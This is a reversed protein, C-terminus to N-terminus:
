ATRHQHDGYFHIIMPGNQMHLRANCHRDVGMDGFKRLNVRRHSAKRRNQATYTESIQVLLLHCLVSSEQQMPKNPMSAVRQGAILM